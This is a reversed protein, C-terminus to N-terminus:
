EFKRKTWYNPKRKHHAVAYIRIKDAESDYIISYRYKKLVRVRFGKRIEHYLEPHLGIEDIAAEVEARFNRAISAGTKAYYKGARLLEDLAAPHLIPRM